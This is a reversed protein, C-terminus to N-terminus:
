WRVPRVRSMRMVAIILGLLFALAISVASLQITVKVGSVLWDFYKGSLVVAWDFKYKLM